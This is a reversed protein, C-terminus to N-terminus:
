IKRFLTGFPGRLVIRWVQAWIKSSFFCGLRITQKSQPPPLHLLTSYFQGFILKKKTLKVKSGKVGM